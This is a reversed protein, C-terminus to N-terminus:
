CARHEVREGKILEGKFWGNCGNCKYRKYSCTLTHEVGRSQYKVSGCRPCALKGATYLTTNPHNPIWPLLVKYLDELIIVDRKNYEEMLLWSEKDRAMCKVWLDHGTHATKKGLGLQQAVYDLKNSPFRFQNKSVRLLDIQKYPAPPTFGHLLFEKNLTPIDFKSGNYHLVADAEDILKHIGGIMTKHKSKMISDFYVHDDQYWKAAWCMVYSSEM